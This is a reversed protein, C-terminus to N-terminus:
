TAKPRGCSTHSCGQLTTQGAARRETEARHEECQGVFCCRCIAVAPEGYEYCRM